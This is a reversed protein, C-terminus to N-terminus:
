CPQSTYMFCSTFSHTSPPLPAYTVTALPLHTLNYIQYHTPFYVESLPLYQSCLYSIIVSSSISSFPVRTSYKFCQQFFFPLIPVSPVSRHCYAWLANCKKPLSLFSTLIRYLKNYFLTLNFMNTITHWLNSYLQILKSPSGYCFVM